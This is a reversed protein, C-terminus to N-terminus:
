IPRPPSAEFFVRRQISLFQGDKEVPACVGPRSEPIVFRHLNQKSSMGACTRDSFADDSFAGSVYRDNAFFSSIINQTGTIKATESVGRRRSM